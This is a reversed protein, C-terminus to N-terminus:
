RYCSIPGKYRFLHKTGKDHKPAKLLHQKLLVFSGIDFRSEHHKSALSRKEKANDLKNHVIQWNITQGKILTSLYQSKSIIPHDIPILPVIHNSINKGFTLESPSFGTQTHILSNYANTLFPLLLHWKSTDQGPLGTRILTGVSKNAAESAGNAWPAYSPTRSRRINLTACLNAILTADTDGGQDSHIAKPTGFIPIWHTIFAEAIEQPNKSFLPIALLFKSFDDLFTVIYKHGEDSRPLSSIIDIAVLQNPATPTKTHGLGVSGQTTQKSYQCIACNRIFNRIDIEM